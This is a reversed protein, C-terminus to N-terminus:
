VERLNEDDGDLESDDRVSSKKSPITSIDTAGREFERMKKKLEANEKM